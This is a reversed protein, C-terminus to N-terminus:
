SGGQGQGWGRGQDPVKAESRYNAIITEAREKLRFVMSELELM